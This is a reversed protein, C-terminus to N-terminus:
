LTSCLSINRVKQMHLRPWLRLGKPSRSLNQSKIHTKKKSSILHVQIKWRITRLISWSWEMLSNLSLFCAFQEYRRMTRMKGIVLLKIVLFFCFLVPIPQIYYGHTLVSKSSSHNIYIAFHSYIPYHSLLLRTIYSLAIRSLYIGGNRRSSFTRISFCYSRCSTSTVLEFYFTENSNRKTTKM